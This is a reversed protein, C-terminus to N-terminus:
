RNLNEFRDELDSLGKELKSIRSENRLLWSLLMGFFTGATAFAVISEAM